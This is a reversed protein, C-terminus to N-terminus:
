GQLSKLYEVYEAFDGDFTAMSQRLVDEESRERLSVTPNWGKFRSQVADAIVALGDSDEEPYVPTEKTGKNADSYDDLRNRFDARAANSGQTLWQALALDFAKVDGIAEQLQASNEPVSLELTIGVGRTSIDLSHDKM